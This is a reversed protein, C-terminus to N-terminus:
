EADAAPAEEAPAEPAAAEEAPPDVAVANDFIIQAARRAKIDGVVASEPVAQKVVALDTAYQDAAKQYEEEIEEATVEIGEVEAVKDLLLETKVRREATERCNNRFDAMTQGMYQLYLDISLGSGQLGQEYENIIRDIQEEIMADPIEVTMNDGAKAILATQFENEVDETEATEIRGRVSERYAALTDFESVDQVFEDNVEPLEEVTIKNVKVHFVAAKGALSPEQYEEPFTVDIDKEEGASMGVVGDEFGPIFTNSGLVLNYGEAKGGDFAVGDVTGEYDINATDGNEAPREVEVTRANRRRIKEIENDIMEETVEVPRKVAEIGKYDGLTIEPWVATTYSLTLEKADSVDVGTVSPTGVTRLKLEEAGFQFAKPALDDTADEYFVDKGYMGEIVMRPAKGKRFGPIAISKKNKLYAANLASEFEAADCTVDFSVTNKEKTELNKAIM